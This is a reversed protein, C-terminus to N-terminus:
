GRRRQYSAAATRGQQARLGHGRWSFGVSFAAEHEHALGIQRRDAHEVPVRALGRAEVAGGAGLEQGRRQLAARQVITRERPFSLGSICSMLEKKMGHFRLSALLVAPLLSPWTPASTTRVSHFLVTAQYVLASHGLLNVASGSIAKHRSRQANLEMYFRGHPAHVTNQGM